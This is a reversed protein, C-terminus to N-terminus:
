IPKDLWEKANQLIALDCSPDFYKFEDGSQREGELLDGSKRYKLDLEAIEFGNQTKCFEELRQSHPLNTYIFCYGKLGNRSVRGRLQHLTALGMREGGVIVITSLKPLSIGVEVVTTSLLISGQEKFEQLVQEKNKDSGNTCYVRDFYKKWFGEGEKLSTYSFNESEEVLPYVIIVQHEQSIEYQIHALLNKFDQKHIVQTTIDKKFPIDKIFTHSILDSHLMALTRPIPTASFQLIHPKKGQTTALKELTHRQLTGFRHQEDSMVLAFQSLDEEKYLLAQTGIVFDFSSFDQKKSKSDGLFLGVKLTPPLFKIAEDYLQQALITTPAMLISKHPYCIMVASLIVITKGCGVDGMILRKAAINQNLDKRITAIAESQGQTLNFPLSQIFEEIKGNCSYKSAFSHKKNRLNKLYNLVEIFKLANLNEIPFSNLKNYKQIFSPTPHFIPLIASIIHPPLNLSQLSEQTILSQTLSILDSNKLKTKEFIPEIMGAQKIVKPQNMVLAMKWQLTGYLLLTSDIPFIQTHFPKPNFITIELEQKFKPLFALIKLTQRTKQHSLITAQFAGQIPLSRINDVLHTNKYEKPALLILDLLTKIKLTKLKPHNLTLM